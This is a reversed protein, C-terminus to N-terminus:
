LRHHSHSHELYGIGSLDPSSLSEWSSQPTQRPPQLKQASKGGSLICAIQKYDRHM